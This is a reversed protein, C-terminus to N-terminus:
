REDDWEDEVDERILEYHEGGDGDSVMGWVPAGDLQMMRERERARRQERRQRCEDEVAQDVIAAAEAEAWPAKSVLDDHLVDAEVLGLYCHVRM